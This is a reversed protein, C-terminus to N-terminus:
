DSELRPRDAGTPHRPRIPARRSPERTRRRPRGQPALANGEGVRPEMARRMRELAARIRSKVTGIPVDLQGAIESHSLGHLYALELLNRHAADLSALADRLRGHLRRHELARDPGSPPAHLVTAASLRDLQQSARARRRMEDIGRSRLSVGLLSAVSGRAPDFASARRWLYFFVESILDEADAADGLLGRSRALMWGRHRDVIIAFAEADGRAVREMLRSDDARVGDQLHTLAEM